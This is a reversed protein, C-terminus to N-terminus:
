RSTGGGDLWAQLILVAAGADIAGKAPARRKGRGAPTRERMRREAEVSTLREDVTEIALETRSALADIFEQTIQAQAGVRGNMSLPLGVVITGADREAALALIEAIEDSVATRDIAGVQVAVTSETDGAAVGIRREGVDLGIARM